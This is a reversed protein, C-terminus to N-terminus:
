HGIQRLNNELSERLLKTREHFILINKELTTLAQIHNRVLIPLGETKIIDIKREKCEENFAEKMQLNHVVQEMAAQVGILANGWEDQLDVIENESM